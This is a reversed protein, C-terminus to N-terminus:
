DGRPEVRFVAPQIRESRCRPCRGPTGLRERKRFAFGCDLCEAPEESLREERGLSRLAHALHEAAERDRLGLERALECLTAPGRRLREIM